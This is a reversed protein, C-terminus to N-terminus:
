NSEVVHHAVFWEVAERALKLSGCQQLFEGRSNEIRWEIRRDTTIQRIVRYTRHSYGYHTRTLKIMTNAKQQTELYRTM